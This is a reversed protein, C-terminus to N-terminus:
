LSGRTCADVMWHFQTEATRYYELSDVAKSFNTFVDIAVPCEPLDSLNRSKLYAAREKQEALRGTWGKQELWTIKSQLINLYGDLEIAISRHVGGMIEGFGNLRSRLKMGNEYDIRLLRLPEEYQLYTTILGGSFGGTFEVAFWWRQIEDYFRDISLVKSLENRLDTLQRQVRQAYRKELDIKTGEHIARFLLSRKNTAEAVYGRLQELQDLWVNIQTVMQDIAESVQPSCISKAGELESKSKALEVEITAISTIFRQERMAQSTMSNLIDSHMKDIDYLAQSLANTDTPIDAFSSSFSRMKEIFAEHGVGLALFNKEVNYASEPNGLWVIFLKEVQTSASQVVLTCRKEVVLDEVESGFANLSFGSLFLLIVFLSLLGHRLVFQTFM